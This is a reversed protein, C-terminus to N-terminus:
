MDRKPSKIDKITLLIENFKEKSAKQARHELYDENVFTTGKNALTSLRIINKSNEKLVANIDKISINPYDKLVEDITEGSALAGLINSVLVRTGKIVPKGHCVNPDTIIRPNM